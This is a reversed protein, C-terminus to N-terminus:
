PERDIEEFLAQVEPARAKRRVSSLWLSLDFNRARLAALQGELATVQRRLGETEECGCPREGPCDDEHLRLEAATPFSAGCPCGCRPSPQREPEAEPVSPPSSTAGEPAAFDERSEKAAAGTPGSHERASYSFEVVLDLVDKLKASDPLKFTVGRADGPAVAYAYSGLMRALDLAVEAPPRPVVRCQQRLKGLEDAVDGWTGGPNVLWTMLRQVLVPDARNVDYCDTM